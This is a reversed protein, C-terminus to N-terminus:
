IFIENPFMRDILPRYDELQKKPLAYLDKRNDYAVFPRLLRETYERDRADMFPECAEIDISHHRVLWSVEAPAHAKFRMYAFDGHDWRFTCNLLGAGADGYLPIKKGAAEVNIPDEDGFKILLKGLDHILGTILFHEDLGDKEMMEVLQLQHTLQSMCGLFPDLPDIIMALEAIADYVRVTGLVPMNEYKSSLRAPLELKTKLDLAEYQRRAAQEAAFFTARSQRQDPALYFCYGRGELWTFAVRM